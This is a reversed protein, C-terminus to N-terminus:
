PGSMRAGWIVGGEWYSGSEVYWFGIRLAAVLNYRLVSNWTGGVCFRFLVVSPMLPNHQNWRNHQTWNSKHEWRVLLVLGPQATRRTTCPGAWAGHSLFNKGHHDQWRHAYLEGPLLIDGCQDRHSVKGCHNKFSTLVVCGLSGEQGLRSIHGTDQEHMCPCARDRQRPFFFCHHLCCVLRTM